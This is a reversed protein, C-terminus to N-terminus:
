QRVDLWLLSINACIWDHFLFEWGEFFSNEIHKYFTCRTRVKVKKFFHLCHENNASKDGDAFSCNTSENTRTRVKKNASERVFPFGVALCLKGAPAATVKDEIVTAVTYWSVLDILDGKVVKFMITVHGVQLGFIPLIGYALTSLVGIYDDLAGLSTFDINSCARINIFGNLQLVAYLSGSCWLPVREQVPRCYLSWPPYQWPISCRSFIFFVQPKLM